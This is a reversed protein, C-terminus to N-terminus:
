WFAVPAFNSRLRKLSAASFSPGSGTGSTSWSMISFSLFHSSRRLQRSRAHDGYDSLKQHRRETQGYFLLLRSTPHQGDNLRFGRLLNGCNTLQHQLIRGPKFEFQAKLSKFFLQARQWPFVVQRLPPKQKRQPVTLRGSDASQTRKGFLAHAFHLTQIHSRLEATMGNPQ